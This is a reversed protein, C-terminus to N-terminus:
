RSVKKALAHLSKDVARDLRKRKALSRPHGSPNLFPCQLLMDKSTGYNRCVDPRNTYITCESTLRNLFICKGDKTIIYVEEDVAEESEIISFDEIHNLNGRYIELPLPVCGCCDAHCAKAEILKRCEQTFEMKVSLPQCDRM